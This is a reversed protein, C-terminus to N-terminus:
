THERAGTGSDGAMAMTEMVAGRRHWAALLVAGIVVLGASLGTWLGIVGWGRMFCLGYAIPLGFAWHGALNCLMPTRTDGVGRLAGTAVAQFGDFPQFVACIMLLTTGVTLVSPDRTFLRLLSVPASLFLMAIGVAAMFALALASWGARRAGLPDGRGIAHGVRVAAASSLGYPVMFFFGAINLVIQNAALAVPSIRAALAAATAFVGVELAFQCAAPTGVRVLQWMRGLDPGYPADHLGSPRAAERRLVVGALMVMLVLRAALTAYASGIPGMAPAGGHGYVFAWNGAANVVNAAVVAIMIPRVLHMAQLYRRLVTYILLPPASWLLSRLYPRLIALVDPHLGARPLAAVGALGVGILAVAMVLALWLGAILWRHCDAIRGAGFAQSVFTDLAFLTGIGLVMFAFFMTSGTGVAGIAAPGLPGVAITDVVGMLVWGLEALIVPWALGLTAALDRRM